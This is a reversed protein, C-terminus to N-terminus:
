SLDYLKPKEGGSIKENITFVQPSSGNLYKIKRNQEFLKNNQQFQPIEDLFIGIKAWLFQLISSM